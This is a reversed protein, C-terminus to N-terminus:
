ISFESIKGLMLEVFGTDQYMDQTECIKKHSNNSSQDTSNQHARRNGFLDIELHLYLQALRLLVAFARAFAAELM